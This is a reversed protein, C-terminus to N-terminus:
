KRLRYKMIGLYLFLFIMLSISTVISVQIVGLISKHWVVIGVFQALSAVFPLIVVKVRGISLLFNVVLYNLTLLSVFVGMWVLEAKVALYHKGYLIGIALDAFLYYILVVGLSIVFTLVFAMYFTHRFSEGRAKKGSIVPFMVSAVPQAAFYIIKGLTSLAAYLGTDFSSFYHKVLIVDITFFSTFALAQVLVPISFKIFKDLEFRVASKVNKKLDQALRESLLYALFVAVLVGMVAGGVSYGMMVLLFGVLFKIVASVFNPGVMGMFKLLGQMASQNVLTVLSMFLIPAVLLVSFIDDIHLFKALVPTIIIMFVSAIVAIRWILKRLERYVVRKEEMSEASSIFKVISVSTSIPVVSVMYLVSYISALVGYDTPGMVRGMVLHYGYNIVNVLLSGGVMVVSGSFLPNNIFKKM